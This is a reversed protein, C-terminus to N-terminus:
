LISKLFTVYDSSLHEGLLRESVTEVLSVSRGEICASFYIKNFAELRALELKITPVTHFKYTFSEKKVHVVTAEARAKNAIKKFEQNSEESIEELNIKPGFGIAYQTKLHIPKYLLQDRRRKINYDSDSLLYYYDEKHKQNYQSIEILSEEIKSLVILKNEPWFFRAEWKLDTKDQENSSVLPAVKKKSFEFNWVLRQNM